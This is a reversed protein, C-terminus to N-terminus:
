ARPGHHREAIDKSALSQRGNGIHEEKAVTREYACLWSARRPINRKGRKALASPSLLLTACSNTTNPLSRKTWGRARTGSSTRIIVFRRCSARSRRWGESQCLNSFSAEANRAESNSSKRVVALGDPSWPRSLSSNVGVASGLTSSCYETEASQALFICCVTRRM